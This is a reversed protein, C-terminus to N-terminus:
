EGFIIDNHKDTFDPHKDGPAEIVYTRKADYRTGNPMFDLITRLVEAESQAIHIVNDHIIIYGNSAYKIEIM